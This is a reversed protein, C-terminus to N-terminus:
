PWRYRHEPRGSGYRLAVEVRGIRQLHSLYRQATARSLGTRQAVDDCSLDSEAARLTEVIVGLTQPSQGKPLRRADTARVAAYLDDIETQTIQEMRAMKARMLRYSELVESLRAFSFPKVLYGLTGGQMASRVSSLDQAATIMIVDVHPMTPERLKRLVELGSLDPLYIDLLLLDPHLRAVAELTAQASYAESVVEFGNVKEVFARHLSAVRFDDDAVVVALTM